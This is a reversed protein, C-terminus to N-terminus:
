VGPLRSPLGNRPNLCTNVIHDICDLAQRRMEENHLRRASLLMPVAASLGNTWSISPLLRTEFYGGRDFVFGAYCHSAPIWADRSIATAIDRVTEYVTHQKRPLEHWLTYVQKLITHIDREDEAPLDFCRLAATVSEGARIRFCNERDLKRPLIHHSDVFMWPANEYGLTYWVERDTLSCGFGAYQDFSGTLGPMWPTRTKDRLIYYPSASLGLIRGDTFMMACPHSLRDSRVMWWPSAPFECEARLRPAKSDVVLPADGRNTGYMFGPLFFRPPAASKDTGLAIRIVGEFPKDATIRIQTEEPSGSAPLLIEAHLSHNEIPLYEEMGELARATLRINM